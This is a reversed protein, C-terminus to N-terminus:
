LRTFLTQTGMAGAGLCYRAKLAHKLFAVTEKRKDVLVAYDGPALAELLVADAGIVNGSVLGGDVYVLNAAAVPLYDFASVEEGDVEILKPTARWFHM